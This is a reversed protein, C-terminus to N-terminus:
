GKVLPNIPLKIPKTGGHNIPPSHQLIDKVPRFPWDHTKLQGALSPFKSIEHLVRASLSNVTWIFYWTYRFISFKDRLKVYVQHFGVYLSFIVVMYLLIFYQHIEHLHKRKM